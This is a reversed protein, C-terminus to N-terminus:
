VIVREASSSWEFKEYYEYDEPIGTEEAKFL